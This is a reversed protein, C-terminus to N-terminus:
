TRSRTRASKRFKLCVCVCTCACVSLCISLYVSLCMYLCWPCVSLCVSLCLCMSLCVSLCTSLYAVSLCVSVWVHDTDEFKPLLFLKVCTELWPVCLNFPVPFCLVPASPAPTLPSSTTTGRVIPVFWIRVLGGFIEQGSNIYCFQM